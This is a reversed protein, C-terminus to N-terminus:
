NLNKYIPTNFITEVSVLQLLTRQDGGCNRFYYISSRTGVALLELIIADNHLRQLPMNQIPMVSSEFINYYIVQMAMSNLPFNTPEVNRGIFYQVDIHSFFIFVFTNM